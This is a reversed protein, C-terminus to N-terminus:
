FGDIEVGLALLLATAEPFAFKAKKLVNDTPAIAYGRAGRFDAKTLNTKHFRTGAFDTGRCSAETLNAGGLEAERVVCDELVLKRLDLGSMNGYSLVSSKFTLHAVTTAETWNIGLLKADKFLVDRFTSGTLRANSLDSQEFACELFR